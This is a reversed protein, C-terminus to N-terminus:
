DEDDSDSEHAFGFTFPTSTAEDPGQTTGTLSHWQSKPKDTLRLWEDHYIDHLREEFLTHAEISKDFGSVQDRKERLFRLVKGIYARPVFNQTVAICEELNVVLHWWGSPVYLVEGPGCVGELFGKVSRAARHYTTLWEAISLPATVESEDASVYVGPPPCDPPLMLWLKSGTIVANWACTGNPDKHFTSGSRKPGIILWRHDPRDNGLIKFADEDFCEPIVYDDALSRGSEKQTTKQAFHSDFLYLPSEDLNHRMYDVYQKLSWDVCEARFSTGSYRDLLGETTWSKMAPWDALEATLIFPRHVHNTKFSELSMKEYRPILNSKPLPLYHNLDIQTNLYPKFLLDSFVNSVQVGEKTIPTRLCSSRWSGTWPCKMNHLVYLDKWLEESLSFGYLRTCTHSLSVLDSMDLLQLIMFLVEDPLQGLRDPKYGSKRATMAHNGSPKIGNPHPAVLNLPAM